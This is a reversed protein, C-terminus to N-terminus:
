CSGVITTLSGVLVVRRLLLDVAEDDGLLELSLEDCGGLLGRIRTTVLVKSNTRPDVCNLWREHAADALGDLQRSFHMACFVAHTPVTLKLEPALVRVRSAFIVAEFSM